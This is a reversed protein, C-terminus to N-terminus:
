QVVILVGLPNIMRGRASAIESFEILESSTLAAPALSLSVRLGISLNEVLNGSILYARTDITFRRYHDVTIILDECAAFEWSRRRAALTCKCADGIVAASM